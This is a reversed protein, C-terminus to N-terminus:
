NVKISFKVQHVPKEKDIVQDKGIKEIIELGKTVEGFVTYQNDFEIEGGQELYIKKLEAPYNALEEENYYKGKTIIFFETPSSQKEPNNDTYRAMAITGKKHILNPRFEAPITFNQPDIQSGGQVCVGKVIRYFNRDTYYGMKVNRIFNARHLPTENYLKIEVNGLGTEIVVTTEPNEKGYATLVEKVQSQDIHISNKCANSLVLLGFWCVFQLLSFRM